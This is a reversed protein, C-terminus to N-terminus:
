VEREEEKRETMFTQRQSWARQRCGKERENRREKRRKGGEKEGKRSFNLPGAPKIGGENEPVHLWQPVRLHSPQVRKWRQELGHSWVPWRSSSVSWVSGYPSPIITMPFISKRDGSEGTKSFPGDKLEQKWHNGKRKNLTLSESM